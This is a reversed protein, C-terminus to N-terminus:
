VLATASADADDEFGFDFSEEYGAPSAASAVPPAGIPAPTALAEADFGDGVQPPEASRRTLAPPEDELLVTAQSDGAADRDDGPLPAAAMSDDDEVATELELPDGEDDLPTAAPLSPSPATQALEEDFFDFADGADSDVALTADGAP